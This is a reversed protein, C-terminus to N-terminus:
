VGKDQNYTTTATQRQRRAAYEAMMSSSSAMMEEPRDTGRPTPSAPRPDRLAPVVGFCISIVCIRLNDKFDRPLWQVEPRNSRERSNTSSCSPTKMM